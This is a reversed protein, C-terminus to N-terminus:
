RDMLLFISIMHIKTIILCLTSQWLKFVLVHLSNHWTLYALPLFVFVMHNRKCTSDLSCLLSVFHHCVWLHLSCLSQCWLPPSWPSLSFPLPILCLSSLSVWPSQWLSPCNPSPITNSGPTPLLSSRPYYICLVIPLHHITSNYVQFM